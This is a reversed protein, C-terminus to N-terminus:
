CAGACCCCSSSRSRSRPSLLLVRRSQQQQQQQQQPPKLRVLFFCTIAKNSAQRAVTPRPVASLTKSKTTPLAQPLAKGGRWVPEPGGGHARYVPIRLSRTQQKTKSCHGGMVRPHYTHNQYYNCPLTWLPPPNRQPSTVIRKQKTTDEM